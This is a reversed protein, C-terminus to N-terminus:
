SPRRAAEAERLQALQVGMANKQDPTLTEEAVSFLVSEEEYFHSELKGWLKRLELELSARDMERTMLSDLRAEIDRHQDYFQQVEDATSSWQHMTLYVLKEESNLHLIVRHRIKRLEEREWLGDPPQTELTRLMGRFLHRINEHDGKLLDIVDMFVTIWGGWPLPREL